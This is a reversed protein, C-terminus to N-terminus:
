ERYVSWTGQTEVDLIYARTEPIVLEKKGKFDGTVDALVSLVKGDPYSLTCKFPGTGQHTIDFTVTDQLLDIIQNKPGVFNEAIRYQDKNIQVTDKYQKQQNQTNQKDKDKNSSCAFIVAIIVLLAAFYKFKSTM